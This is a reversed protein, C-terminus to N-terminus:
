DLQTQRASLEEQCKRAMRLENTICNLLKNVAKNDQKKWGSLERNTVCAQGLSAVHQLQVLADTGFADIWSGPDLNIAKATLAKGVKSRPDLQPLPLPTPVTMAVCYWGVVQELRQVVEKWWVAVSIDDVGVLRQVVVLRNCLEDVRDAAWAQPSFGKVGEESFAMGPDVHAEYSRAIGV